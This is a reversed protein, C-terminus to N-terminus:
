CSLASRGENVVELAEEFNVTGAYLAKGVIVGEIGLHKLDNLARIDEITSVGGSAIVKVEASTVLKKIAELNPGKLTGDRSIDTFIVRKIGMKCVENVLELADKEATLGWGEIAVKGNRADIGVVIREGFRDCAEQVLEPNRIAVTGLIVRSVGMQLLREITPIDRIGGGVQVPIRVAEIISAITELNKPSGAFAGDLDVVHLLRAGNGEWIRAVAMPNDSYVTERDLRGEVLRVCKGARLDIAPIILM